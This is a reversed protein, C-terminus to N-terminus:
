IHCIIPMFLSTFYTYSACVDSLLPFSLTAIFGHDDWCCTICLTLMLLMVRWRLDWTGSRANSNSRGWWARVMPTSATFQLKLPAWDILPSEWTNCSRRSMISLASGSDVQIRSVEPSGIYGTFYLPRDHKGKFQMSDQTFTISPVHQSAHLCNEEEEEEPKAPIRAM